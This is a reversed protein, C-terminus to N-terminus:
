ETDCSHSCIYQTEKSLLVEEFSSHIRYTNNKFREKLIQLNHQDLFKAIKDTCEKIVDELTNCEDLDVKFQYGWIVNDSVQFLKEHVM